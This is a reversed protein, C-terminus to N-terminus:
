GEGLAARQVLMRRKAFLLGAQAGVFPSVTFQFFAPEAFMTLLLICLLCTSIPLAARSMRRILDVVFWGFVVCGALGMKLAVYAWGNDVFRQTLDGRLVSQWEIEAGMGGGLVPSNEVASVAAGLQLGRDMISTNDRAGQPVLQVFTTSRMAYNLILEVYPPALSALVISGALICALWRRARSAATFAWMIALALPFVVINHRAILLLPVTLMIASAVWWRWGGRVLFLIGPIAAETHFSTNEKHIGYEGFIWAYYVLFALVCPVGYKRLNRLFFEEDGSEQAFAFYAVFLLSGYLQRFVYSTENGRIYGYVSAALAVVLFAQLSRPLRPLLTLGVRFFPALTILFLGVAWYVLEIAQDTTDNFRASSPLFVNGALLFLPGAAIVEKPHYYVRIALGAALAMLLAPMGGTLSVVPLVAVLSLGGAIKWADAPALRDQAIATL